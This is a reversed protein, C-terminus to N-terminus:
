DNESTLEYIVNMWPSEPSNTCAIHSDNIRLSAPHNAFLSSNGSSFGILGNNYNLDGCKYTFVAFSSVSNTIIVAQFSSTQISIYGNIKIIFSPMLSSFSVIFPVGYEPVNKWEAVLMWKGSFQSGMHEDILSNVKSLLPKSTTVTHVEYSINGVGFSHDIDILYPAVLPTLFFKDFMEVGFISPTAVGFSIYGNTCVQDFFLLLLSFVTFIIM